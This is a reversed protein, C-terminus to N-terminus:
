VHARGIELLEDRNDLRIDAVITLPGSTLPQCETRAEPTTHFAAHALGAVGRAWTAEDDPGRHRIAATLSVIEEDRVPRGDM